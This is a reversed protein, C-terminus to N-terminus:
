LAESLRLGYLFIMYCAENASKHYTKIGLHM